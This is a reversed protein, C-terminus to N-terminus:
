FFDIIDFGELEVKNTKGCKKNMCKFEQKVIIGFSNTNLFEKFKDLQASSLENLLKLRTDMDKVDIVGEDFEVYDIMAALSLEIGDNEDNDKAKLIDMMDDLTVHKLIFILKDTIKFEKDTLEELYKIDIDKSLDIKFANKKTGCHKCTGFLEITDGLSKMRLNILLWFFDELLISGLAIDNKIVCKGLLKVLLMFNEFESKTEEGEVALIKQDKTKLSRFEIKKNKNSLLPIKFTYTSDEMHNLVDDINSM